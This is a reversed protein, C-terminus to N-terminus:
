VWDPKSSNNEALVNQMQQPQPDLVITKMGTNQAITKNVEQQKTEKFNDKELQLLYSEDIKEADIIISNWASRAITKWCMEEYWGDTEVVKKVNKGNSDKEWVEKSGGWFEASAKDPRRKEIDKVNLVKIKNKTPDNKWVFYYFGGVLTGRDFSNTVKFHYHEIENNM